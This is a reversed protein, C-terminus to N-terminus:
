WPQFQLLLGRTCMAAETARFPLSSTRATRLLTSRGSSSFASANGSDDSSGVCLVQGLRAPYAINSRRSSGANAAACVVHVGRQQAKAIADVLHPAPVDTGVSLSIVKCDHKMAWEIGSVVSDVSGKGDESIVKGVFLSCDPALGGGCGAIIDACATGHGNPDIWAHPEATVFSECAVIKNRLAKHTVDVGTDLLAVRCGGGRDLQRWIAQDADWLSRTTRTEDPPSTVPRAKQVGCLLAGSVGDVSKVNSPDTRSKHSASFHLDRFRVLSDHVKAEDYGDQFTREWLEISALRPCAGSVFQVFDVIDKPSDASARTRFALAEITARVDCLTDQLIVRALKLPLAERSFGPFVFRRVVRVNCRRLLQYLPNLDYRLWNSRLDLAELGSLDICGVEPELSIRDLAFRFQVPRMGSQIHLSRAPSDSLSISNTRTPLTCDTTVRIREGLIVVFHQRSIKSFRLPIKGPSFPLECEFILASDFKHAVQSAVCKSDINGCEDVLLITARADAINCLYLQLRSQVACPETCVTPSELLREREARCEAALHGAEALAKGKAEVLQQWWAEDSDSPGSRLIGTCLRRALPLHEAFNEVILQLADADYALRNRDHVESPEYRLSDVVGRMTEFTIDAYHLLFRLQERPTWGLRDMYFLLAASADTICRKRALTAIAADILFQTSAAEVPEKKLLRWAAALDEDSLSDRECSVSAFCAAAAFKYDPEVTLASKVLLAFKRRRVLWEVVLSRDVDCFKGDPDLEFLNSRAHNTAEDDHVVDYLLRWASSLWAKFANTPVDRKLRDSYRLLATAVHLDLEYALAGSKLKDHAKLSSANNYDGALTASALSALGAPDVSM